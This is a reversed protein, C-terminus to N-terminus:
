QTLARWRAVNKQHEALSRAFVHGGSGDAVFYLDDSAAPHLVAHLSAIGPACIPGPPLGAIRYTNYPTDRELDARGLKHDFDGLGYAVTPDAQLKMGLRLRNLYVAAIHAREDPRATEREVISALVLAQRPSALPLDPARAEWERALARQMAVTMRALLAERSTGYEYAYTEPLVSGEAPPRITGTLAGADDVLAAIRASTLGEPITLHHQVPRAERLVDFLQHLSAGAPFAFEGARPAGGATVLAAIRFAVPRDLAGADVLAAAVADLGGHPIVIARAAPLPGPADWAHRAQWWGIAAAALLAVGALAAGRRLSM